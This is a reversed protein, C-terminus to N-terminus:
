RREAPETEGRTGLDKGGVRVPAGVGGGRRRTRVLQARARGAETAPPQPAPELAAAQVARPIRRRRLQPSRRLRAAAIVGPAPPAAAPVRGGAGLASEWAADPEAQRGPRWCRDGHAGPAPSKKEQSRM